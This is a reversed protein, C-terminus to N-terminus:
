KTKITQFILKSTIYEYKNFQNEKIMVLENHAIIFFGEKILENLYKICQSVNGNILTECAYGEPLLIQELTTQKNTM